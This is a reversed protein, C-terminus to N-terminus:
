RVDGKRFLLHNFFAINKYEELLCANMELELMDDYWKKTFKVDDNSSLSFFTRVGFRKELSLGVQGCQRVLEERSYTDRTGFM